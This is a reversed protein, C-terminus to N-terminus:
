VIPIRSALRELRELGSSKISKVGGHGSSALRYRRKIASWIDCKLHKPRLRINNARCLISNRTFDGQVFFWYRRATACGGQWSLSFSQQFPHLEVSHKEKRRQGSLRSMSMSLFHGSM